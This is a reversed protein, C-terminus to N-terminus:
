GYKRQIITIGYNTQSPRHDLGPVYPFCLSSSHYMVRLISYTDTHTYRLRTPITHPRTLAEMRSSTSSRASQTGEMAAKTAM